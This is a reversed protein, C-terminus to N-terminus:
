RAVQVQGGIQATTGDTFHVLAQVDNVRVARDVQQWDANLFRRLWQGPQLDFVHVPEWATDTAPEPTEAPGIPMPAEAIRDLADAADQALDHFDAVSGDPDLDALADIAAELADRLEVMEDVLTDITDTDIDPRTGNDIAARASRRLTAALTATTTM